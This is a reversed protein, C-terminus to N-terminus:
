ISVGLIKISKVPYEYEAYYGFADAPHEYGGKKDVERTGPKYITQELAEIFKRCKADIRLRIRGEATM